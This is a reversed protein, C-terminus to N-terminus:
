GAMGLPILNNQLVKSAEQILQDCM